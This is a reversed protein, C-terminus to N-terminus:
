NVRVKFVKRWNTAAADMAAWVQKMVTPYKESSMNRPELIKTHSIFISTSRVAHLKCTYLDYTDQAIQNLLSSSAGWNESSLAELLRKELDTGRAKM